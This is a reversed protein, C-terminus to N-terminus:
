GEIGSSQTCLAGKHSFLWQGNLTVATRPGPPAETSDPQCQAESGALPAVSIRAPMQVFCAVGAINHFSQGNTLESSRPKGCPGSNACMASM